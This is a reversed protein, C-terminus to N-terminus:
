LKSPVHASSAVRAKTALAHVESPSSSKLRHDSWVQRWKRAGPEGAWLGLMHRAIAYWNIGQTAQKEMYNVMQLEVNLRDETPPVMGVSEDWLRMWWPDHYASRGVMFGDVQDWHPKVDELSKIAGNLVITLSPFDRKLRGAWDPRLPPVERNEKPSLGDLWANRAHVIFVHCGAQAVTGVFDRVFDYSEM